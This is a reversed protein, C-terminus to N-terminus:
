DIYAILRKRWSHWMKLRSNYRWKNGFKRELAEISDRKWEGTGLGEHWERWATDLTMWTTDFPEVPYGEAMLAIRSQILDITELPVTAILPSSRTLQPASKDVSNSAFQQGMVVLQSLPIDDLDM